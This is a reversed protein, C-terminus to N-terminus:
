EQVRRQQDRALRTSSKPSMGLAGGTSYISKKRLAGSGVEDLDEELDYESVDNYTKQSTQHVMRSPMPSIGTSGKKRHNRGTSQQMKFSGRGPSLGALKQELRQDDGVQLRARGVVQDFGGEKQSVRAQDSIEVQKNSNIPTISNRSTL